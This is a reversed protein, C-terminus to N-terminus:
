EAELMNLSYVNNITRVLFRQRQAFEVIDFASGTQICKDDKSRHCLTLIKGEIMYYKAIYTTEGASVVNFLM